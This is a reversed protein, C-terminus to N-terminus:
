VLQAATTRPSRSDSWRRYLRWVLVLLAIGLLVSWPIAWSSTSSTTSAPVKTTVGAAPAFPTIKVDASVRFSAPVGTFTETFKVANGPLLQDVDRVKRTAVTRGIVDKIEIAQHAGLRVNGTNRLTYSVDFTGDLPNATGSYGSSLNQVVLSQNVQGQVRVYARSGTRRVVTIRQGNADVTPTPVAAVIGATHDGPSAKDPVTVTIPIDVKTKPAVTVNNTQLKIWSGADTPTADTPLLTLDGARNNFADTAYVNFTLPVDSFNWLTM